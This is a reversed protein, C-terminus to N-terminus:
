QDLRKNIESLIEYLPQNPEIGPVMDCYGSEGPLSSYCLWVKNKDAMIVDFTVLTQVDVNTALVEGLEDYLINGDLILRVNKTRFPKFTNYNISTQVIEDYKFAYIINDSIFLIETLPKIDKDFQKGHIYSYNSDKAYPSDQDIIENHGINFFNEYPIIKFSTPDVDPIVPEAGRSYYIKGNKQFYYSNITTKDSINTDTSQMESNDMDNIVVDHPIDAILEGTYTPKDSEKWLIFGLVFILILYVIREKM